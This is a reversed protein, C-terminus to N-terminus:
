AKFIDLIQMIFFIVVGAVIFWSGRSRKSADGEAYVLFGLGIIACVIAIIQFVSM